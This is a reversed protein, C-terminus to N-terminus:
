PQIKVACGKQQLNGLLPKVDEPFTKPEEGDYIKLSTLKDCNVISAPISQINSDGITITSLETCKGIDEPLAFGDCQTIELTNLKTLNKFSQALSTIGTHALRLRELQSCSDLNRITELSECDSITIESTSNSLKVSKLSPCKSITIKSTSDSLEVSELSSCDQIVLSPAACIKPLLALTGCQTISLSELNKMKELNKLETLNPLDRLSLNKIEANLLPLESVTGVLTLSETRINKVTEIDYLNSLDITCHDRTHTWLEEPLLLPAYQRRSSADICESAREQNTLFAKGEKVAKTFSEQSLPEPVTDLLALLSYDKVKQICSAFDSQNMNLFTSQDPFQLFEKIENPLKAQLHAFLSLKKEPDNMHLASLATQTVPSSETGQSVKKKWLSTTLYFTIIGGIIPLAIGSVVILIGASIKKYRGDINNFQNWISSLGKQINIM